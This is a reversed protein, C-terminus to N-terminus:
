APSPASPFVMMEEPIEGIVAHTTRLTERTLHKTTRGDVLGLAEKSDPEPAHVPRPTIPALATRTKTGLVAHILTPPLGLAQYRGPHHEVIEFENTIPDVYARSLRVSDGQAFTGYLSIRLATSDDNFTVLALRIKYGEHPIEGVPAATVVITPFHMSRTITQGHEVSVAPRNGEGIGKSTKFKIAWEYFSEFGFTHHPWADTWSRMAATDLTIVADIMAHAQAHDPQPWAMEKPLLLRINSPVGLPIRSPRLVVRIRGGDGNMPGTRYCDYGVHGTHAKTGVLHEGYRADPNRWRPKKHAM